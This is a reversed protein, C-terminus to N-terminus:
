RNCILTICLMGICWGRPKQKVLLTPYSLLGDLLDPQASTTVTTTTMVVPQMPPNTQTNTYPQPQPQTQPPAMVTGPPYIFVAQGTHPDIVFPQGTQPDTYM